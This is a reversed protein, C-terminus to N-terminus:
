ITPSSPNSGLGPPNFTRQALGNFVVVGYNPGKAPTRDWVDRILLGAHLAQLM